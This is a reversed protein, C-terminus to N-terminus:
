PAVEHLLSRKEGFRLPSLAICLTAKDHPYSTLEEATIVRRTTGGIASGRRRRWRATMAEERRASQKGRGIGEEELRGKGDDVAVELGLDTIMRTLALAGSRMESTEAVVTIMPPPLSHYSFVSRRMESTEALPKNYRPM